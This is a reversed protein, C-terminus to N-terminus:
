FKYYYDRVKATIKQDTMKEVTEIGIIRSNLQDHQLHKELEGKAVGPGFIWISDANRLISVVGDYYASLCSTLATNQDGEDLPVKLSDGSFQVHKEINSHIQITADKEGVVTVIIAKKLDIWLGVNRTM